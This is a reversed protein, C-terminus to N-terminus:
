HALVSKFKSFQKRAFSSNLPIIGDTNQMFLKERFIESYNYAAKVSDNYLSSVIFWWSGNVLSVVM